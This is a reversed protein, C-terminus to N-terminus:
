VHARGIEFGNSHVDLWHKAWQWKSTFREPYIFHLGGWLKIPKGGMPTGSLAYRRQAKVEKCADAFKSGTGRKGSANTLGSRHYEDIIFSNWGNPFEKPDFYPENGARVTDYTCVFWVPWDEDVCEWFEEIARKKEPASLAGSFTIVEHPQELDKTWKEIEYRWVTELSTRPACVLHAGNELDAEFMAGIMETTKGLRQENMNLASTAALFKVDARQYGRMWEALAPIKGHLVMDQPEVSDILSLSKLNDEMKRAERGWALLADGLVLRDGFEERLHRGTDMNLPVTWYPGGNGQPVYYAGKIEKIARYLAEEYRFHVEIRNGVPNLEAFAFGQEM